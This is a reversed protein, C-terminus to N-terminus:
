KLNERLLKNIAKKDKDEETSPEDEGELNEADNDKNLAPIQL